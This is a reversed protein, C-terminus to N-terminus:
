SYPGVTLFGCFKNCIRCKKTEFTRENKLLICKGCYLPFLMDKHNVSFKCGSCICFLHYDGLIEPCYFCQEKILNKFIGEHLEPRDYNIIKILLRFIYDETEANKIEEWLLFSYIHIKIDDPINM